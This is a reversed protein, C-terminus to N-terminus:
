RWFNQRFYSFVFVLYWHIHSRYQYFFLINQGDSSIFFIAFLFLFCIFSLHKFFIFKYLILRYINCFHKYYKKYQLAKIPFFHHKRRLKTYCFKPSHIFNNCLLTSYFLHRSPITILVVYLM